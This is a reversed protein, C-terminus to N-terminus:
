IGNGKKNIRYKTELSRNYFKGDHGYDEYGLFNTRHIGGNGSEYIGSFLEEGRNPAEYLFVPLWSRKM